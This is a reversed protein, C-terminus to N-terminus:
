DSAYCLNIRTAPHRNASARRPPLNKNRVEFVWESESVWRSGVYVREVVMEVDCCHAAMGVDYRHATMGVVINKGPMHLLTLSCWADM